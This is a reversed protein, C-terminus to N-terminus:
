DPHVSKVSLDGIAKVNQITAILEPLALSCLCFADQKKALIIWDWPTNEMFPVGSAGRIKFNKGGM